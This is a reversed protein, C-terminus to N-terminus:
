ENIERGAREVLEDSNSIPAFVPEPSPIEPEQSIVVIEDDLDDHEEEPLHFEPPTNKAKKEKSAKFWGIASAGLTLLLYVILDVGKDSM